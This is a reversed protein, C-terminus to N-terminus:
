IRRFCNSADVEDLLGLLQEEEIDYRIHSLVKYFLTSDVQGEVRSQKGQYVSAALQQCKSLLTLKIDRIGSEAERIARMDYDSTNGCPCACAACDPAIANKEAHITDIMENLAKEDPEGCLVPLALAKIVVSDTVDTKPNNECAGVLGILASIIDDERM